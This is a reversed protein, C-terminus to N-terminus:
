IDMRFEVQNSRTNTILDKKNAQSPYSIELIVVDQEAIFPCHVEHPPISAYFGTELWM